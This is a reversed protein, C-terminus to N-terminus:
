ALFQKSFQVFEYVDEFNSAVGLSVRVAGSNKGDMCLKLDDITLHADPQAFCSELEGQTIGFASEGTGPNCFCGTRVSINRESAHAEIVNHDIVRDTEDYFNMTFTAGRGAMTEPGYLKILPRGNGHRLKLMQELFWGGLQTVHQQICPVGVRGLQELGISVAPINLYNVTGDEFGEAGKSLYHKDGQVSALSITGGAFWPRRLKALSEKRALLCGLGTPYGFMKYFSLGVFEPKVRSLDLPNTPAYAAADLFVEWGHSQAKHVWALSHKVGSFNSQAPYAFLKCGSAPSSELLGGLVKADLTLDPLALPVYDLRAGRAKAYERIGLVSNHNDFSLLYHSEPCFPYAEAVLKFAGSANQTFVVEYESSSANFHALIDTRCQEVLETAASSSPNLSHPNGFVQTKLLEHHAELQAEAYLGGGTYDLYVHEGADLRSFQDQRLREFKQVVGADSTQVFHDYAERFALTM